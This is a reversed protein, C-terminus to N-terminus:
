EAWYREILVKEQTYFNIISRGQAKIDWM